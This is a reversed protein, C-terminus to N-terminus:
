VKLDFFVPSDGFKERENKFMGTYCIYRRPLDSFSHLNVFVYPYGFKSKAENLCQLLFSKHDPFLRSNLLKYVYWDNVQYFIFRGTLNRSMTTLDLHKTKAFPNQVTFACSINFHHSHMTMLAQMAEKGEHFGLLDDLIVLVPKGAASAQVQDLSPIEEQIYLTKSSGCAKRLQELYSDRDNLMPACYMICQFPKEWVSDDEVLKLLLTSKGAESPGILELRAPTKIQWRM